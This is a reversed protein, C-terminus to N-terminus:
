KKEKYIYSKGLNDTVYQVKKTKKNIIIWRGNSDYKSDYDEKNLSTANFKTIFNDGQLLANKTPEIMSKSKATDKALVMENNSNRKAKGALSLLSATATNYFENDSLNPYMKKITSLYEKSKDVGLTGNQNFGLKGGSTNINLYLQPDNLFSAMLDERDKQKREELLQQREIELRQQQIGIESQSNTNKNMADWVNFGQGAQWQAQSLLSENEFRPVYQTAVGQKGTTPDFTPTQINSYKFPLFENAYEFPISEPANDGNIDWSLNGANKMADRYRQKDAFEAQRARIEENYAARQLASTALSDELQKSAMDVKQQEMGLRKEELKKQQNQALM